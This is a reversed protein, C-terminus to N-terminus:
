FFVARAQQKMEATTAFPIRSTYENKAAVIKKAPWVFIARNWTNVLDNYTTRAATIERQLRSNERMANEVSDHARLDPYNEFAIQIQNQVNALDQAMENRASDDSKGGGRYQAIKSFTEKDLDIAKDLLRAANQLIVVRQELYNDIESAARNISQELKSFYNQAQVKKVLFIVGPIIALIWLLIEFIKSGAGVKVPIQKQIVHVDRGEPKVYQMDTEDLLNAM